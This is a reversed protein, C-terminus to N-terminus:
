QESRAATDGLNDLESNAEAASTRIREASSTWSDASSEAAEKAQLGTEKVAETVQKYTQHTLVGANRFEDMTQMLAARDAETKANRWANVLATEIVAGTQTGSVGLSGIQQRLVNLDALAQQTGATISNTLQAQSVGLRQLAQDI